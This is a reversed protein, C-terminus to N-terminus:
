KEIPAHVTASHKIEAKKQLTKVYKAVAEARAQQKLLLKVKARDVPADPQEPRRLREAHQAIFASIDAETPDSASPLSIALLKEIHLGTIVENRLSDSGAPGDALIGKPDRGEPTRKRILRLAGEIEAESATIQLRRAEQLLLERKVFDDIVKSLVKNRIMVVRDAPMEPPPSSGLRLDMQRLAEGRTLVADNVSILIESLNAVAGPAGDLLAQPVMGGKGQARTGDHKSCGAGLVVAVLVM